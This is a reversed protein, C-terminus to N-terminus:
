RVAGVGMVPIGSAGPRRAALLERAEELREAELYARLLTFAILDHQARSGGIRESEGVLPALADIAAEFDGREYAAVGRSASPLYSGSPYRGERALDEMQSARADLGSDDGMVAQALIVHLDALGNGPRALASNAYDYMARWADADRPYGALESRWLFAAADSMKQQPGGSHRGLTLADRYLRLAETWNGIQLECLSLHWSLHGYFFGNRPYDTLWSSLFLRGADAEGMEYCIHAYGHAVHANNPNAALSQEIKPKAASLQGDESLAMAHHALFWPDDGYHPALSDMLVAIQHKQGIRGSAGILGNPNAASALVLADRPWQALHESLAAIAADSRGAFVQDFFAIHGAERAPLGAALADAQAQVAKAAAVNGERMLVQAKGTHAMAFGPDAVIARDFAEIAGPYLTLALDRGQVYADRAAVSTTSLSQDYRDTFM